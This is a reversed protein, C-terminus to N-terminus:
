FEEDLFVTMWLYRMRRGAVIRFQCLCLSCFRLVSVRLCLSSLCLCLAFARLSLSAFLFLYFLTKAATSPTHPQLVTQQLPLASNALESHRTFSFVTQLPRPILSLCPQPRLSRCPLIPLTPPPPVPPPPTGSFTGLASHQTFPLLCPQPRLSRCPSIPLTPPPPVPPPPTGSLNSFTSLVSPHPSLASPFAPSM